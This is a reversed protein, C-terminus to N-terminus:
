KRKVPLSINSAFVNNRQVDWIPVGEKPLRTFLPADAGALSV